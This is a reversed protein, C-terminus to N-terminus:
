PQVNLTRRRFCSNLLELAACQVKFWFRSGGVPFGSGFEAGPVEFGSGNLEVIGLIQSASIEPDASDIADGRTQLLRASTVTVVRHAFLRGEREFLVVDGVVVESVDVARVNLLDGPQIAPMMSSGYARVRVFGYRRLVDRVLSPAIQRAAEPLSSV